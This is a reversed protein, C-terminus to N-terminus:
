PADARPRGSRVKAILGLATEVDRAIAQYDRGQVHEKRILGSGMGVCSAGAGFWAALNEEDCTV